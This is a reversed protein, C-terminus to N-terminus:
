GRQHATDGLTRGYGSESPNVVPEQLAGGYGSPKAEWGGPHIPGGDFNPQVVPAQQIVPEETLSVVAAGILAAVTIALFWIAVLIMWRRNGRSPQVAITGVKTSM